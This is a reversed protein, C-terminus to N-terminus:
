LPALVDLPFSRFVDRMMELAMEGIVTNVTGEFEKSIKKSNENFVMIANKVMEPNGKFLNIMDVRIDDVKVTMDIDTFEVYEKQERTVLKCDM